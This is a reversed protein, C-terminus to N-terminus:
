RGAQPDPRCLSHQLRSRLLGGPNRCADVRERCTADLAPPMDPECWVGRGSGRGAGGPLPFFRRRPDMPRSGDCSASASAPAANAAGAAEAGHFDVAIDRPPRGTPQGAAGAAEPSPDGAPPIGEGDEASMGLDARVATPRM